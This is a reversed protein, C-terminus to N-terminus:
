SRQTFLATSHTFTESQNIILLNSMKAVTNVTYEYETKFITNICKTVLLASPGGSLIIPLEEIIHLKSVEALNYIDPYITVMGGQQALYPSGTM